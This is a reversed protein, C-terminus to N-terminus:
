IGVELDGVPGDLAAILANMYKGATQYAAAEPTAAMNQAALAYDAETTGGTTSSSQSSSTGDSNQTTTTRTVSPNDAAIDRAKSLFRHLEAETPGRGIASEVAGRLTAWAQGETINDVSTSTSTVTKNGARTIAATDRAMLDMADFPTIPKGARAASNAWKVAQEWVQLFQARSNITEGAALSARRMEQSWKKASWSWPVDLAEQLPLLKPSKKRTDKITPLKADTIGSKDSGGVLQVGGVDERTGMWVGDSAADKKSAPTIGLGGPVLGLGAFFERPDPPNSASRRRVQSQWSEEAVGRLIGAM